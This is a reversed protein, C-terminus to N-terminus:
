RGGAAPQPLLESYTDGIHGERVLEEYEEDSVQLLHKYVYENHQGLTPAPSRISLPTRSLKFLPGSYPHTGAQPHTVAQFFGRARLHPDRFAEHHSIVPGAPVGAEQLLRMVDYPDHKKTWAAIIPDLDDQHRHRGLADAFRLDSALEPQGTVRCLAQWQEDTSVAIVAWQDEGRCPYCGHPAMFPHRNGLTGQVRGNMSYDMLAQSLHQVVNEAQSLDIFQGVGTRRSYHIATLVAFAASAGGAADSHLSTTAGTYDMDPYGRLSAHGVVAEMTGGFGRFHRYPGTTGFGPMSILVFRPNAEHLVPYGLGLKDLTGTTNNEILADSMKVLRLFIEKGRPRALDVTMSVKNRSHHNFNANREWPRAGPDGNPYNTRRTPPLTRPVRIEGRGNLDPRQLSEIRIVEAGLDSLFQTAFPGAWVVTMDLIRVGDLPLPAM